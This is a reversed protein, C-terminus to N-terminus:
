KQHHQEIERSPRDEKEDRGRGGRGTVASDENAEVANKGPLERSAEGTALCSLGGRAVAEAKSDQGCGVGGEPTRVWRLGRRHEHGGTDGAERGLPLM